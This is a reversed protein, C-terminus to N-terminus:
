KKGSLLELGKRVLFLTTMILLEEENPLIAKKLEDKAM